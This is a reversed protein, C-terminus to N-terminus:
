LLHQDIAFRVAASRSTVGLKRYISHLHTSVTRTSLVLEKAVQADTLGTGVLRLVDVERQSLGALLNPTVASIAHAREIVKAAEEYVQDLSFMQGHTWQEEYAREGLQVRLPLLEREHLARFAPPVPIGVETRLAYAAAFFQVASVADGCAGALVAIVELSYVTGFPQRLTSVISLAEQCAECAVMIEGQFLAVRAQANLAYALEAHDHLIRRIAIVEQFLVRAQAYEEQLMAALALGSLCRAISQQDGAARFLNLGETCYKIAEEYGGQYLATWGLSSCSEALDIPVDLTRLLVIREELLARIRIYEGQFRLVEVMNQLIIVRLAPSVDPRALIIEYWYRGQSLRSRTVWFSGLASAIRATIEVQQAALSRELALRLNDIECEILHLWKAQEADHLHLAAEEIFQLYWEWHQVYFHQFDKQIYLYQQAYQQITELLRYRVARGEKNEETIVWSKYVLQTLIDLVEYPDVIEDTCIGEVAELTWSGGFISLRQLVKQETESLLAYSWDFTAQLTQHRAASTRNGDTLVRFREDIRAALQDVSFMHMRAAALELALPIGDLCHCIHAVAHMNESTIHFDSVAISARNCFFRVADYDMLHAVSNKPSLLVTLPPYSLSTVRWLIEGTLRLGERSTVLVHLQLCHQLLTHVLDACATIVHECNDFVFLVHKPQLAEILVQLLSRGAQEHVGFTTAVLSLVLAPDSLISLEIVYVGDAFQAEVESAVQLALRTKGMGGTGILTVLRRATIVRKLTVVDDERGVFDTLHFPLLTAVLL